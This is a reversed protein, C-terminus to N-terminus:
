VAAGTVSMAGRNGNANVSVTVKRSEHGVKALLWCEEMWAATFDNTANLTSDRVVGLDLTMGQGRVFTGAPYIMYELTTPWATSAATAGPLGASRVQYDGVFQASIGACDLWDALVTDSVCNYDTVGAVYALDSKVIDKSWRPFIAEVVATDCMAYKEIYDRRQLRASGLIGPTAPLGSGITGVATSGARLASLLRTNTYHAQIAEVLRLHNAILEPFADKTLNGVTVCVGDCDLTADNYGPCPVRVCPKTGSQATGTVAAIDQTNTWTWVVGPLASIDGFSPSTPWSFGGRNIGITPLSVMGDLCVINYFDYSIEHPSCWGGAAVLAAPDAALSLIESMLELDMNQEITYAFKRQLQAVPVRQGSGNHTVGLAKARSQMAKVLSKMDKIEGGLTFGPIDASATLVSLGRSPAKSTKAFAQAASLDIDVPKVRGQGRLQPNLNQKPGALGGLDRHATVAGGVERTTAATVVEEVAADTVTRATAALREQIAAAQAAVEDAENERRTLEARVRNIGTELTAGREVAARDVVDASFLADIEALAAAEYATLDNASLTRIDDGEPLVLDTTDM